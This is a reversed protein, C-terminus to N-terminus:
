EKNGESPHATEFSWTLRYIKWLGHPQADLRPAFDVFFTVSGNPRTLHESIRSYLSLLDTIGMHANSFIEGNESKQFAGFPREGDPLPEVLFSTNSLELAITGIFKRHPSLWDYISAQGIINLKIPDTDDGYAELLV